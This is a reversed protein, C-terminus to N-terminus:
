RLAHRQRSVTLLEVLVAIIVAGVFAPIVRVGFIAPGFGGLILSGAFGGVIGALVAGVWGWPLKGPVISDAAWGILGAVVLTLLFGALTFTLWMVAGLLIALIVLGLLLLLM